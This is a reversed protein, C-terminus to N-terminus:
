GCKEKGRRENEGTGERREGDGQRKAGGGSAPAGGRASGVKARAGVGARPGRGVRRLLEPTPETLEPRPPDTCRRARIPARPSAPLPSRLPIHTGTQPPRPGPLQPSILRHTISPHCVNLEM